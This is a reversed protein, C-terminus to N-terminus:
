RPRFHEYGGSSLPRVKGSADRLGVGEEPSVVEGIETVRVGGAALASQLSRFRGSSVAILLEYDEGGDLALALPDSSRLEAWARAGAGIPVAAAEVMLGVGSAEAILALESALGDSIDILATAGSAAARPGAAVPPSPRL